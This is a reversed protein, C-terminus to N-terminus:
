QKIENIIKEFLEPTFDRSRGEIEDSSMQGLIREIRQSTSSNSYLCDNMCDKLIGWNKISVIAQPVTCLNACMFTKVRFENLGLEEIKITQMDKSEEGKKEISITQQGIKGAYINLQGWSFPQARNIQFVDKEINQAIYNKVAGMGQTSDISSLLEYAVQLDEQNLKSIERGFYMLGFEIPKNDKTLVDVIVYEYENRITSVLEYSYSTEGSRLNWSHEEKCKYKKCFQSNEFDLLTRITDSLPQTQEESQEEQAPLSQAVEAPSKAEERGLSAIIIILFITAGVIWFWKQNKIKEKM